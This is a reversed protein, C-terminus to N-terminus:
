DWGEVEGRVDADMLTCQMAQKLKSRMVAKTSYDPLKMSFFCTRSTPLYDDASKGEATFMVIEQDVIERIRKTHMLKPHKAQNGEDLLYAYVDRGLTRPPDSGDTQKAVKKPQIQQTFSCSFIQVSKLCSKHRCPRHQCLVSMYQQGSVM